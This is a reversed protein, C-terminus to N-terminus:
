VPDLAWAHDAATCAGLTDPADDEARAAELLGAATGRASPRGSGASVTGDLVLWLGAVYGEVTTIPERESRSGLTALPGHLASGVRQVTVEAARAESPTAPRGDVETGRTMAKESLVFFVSVSRVQATCTPGFTLTLRYNGIFASASQPRALPVPVAALLALAAAVVSVPPRV